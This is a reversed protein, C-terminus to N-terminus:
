ELFASIHGYGVEKVEVARRGLQGASQDVVHGKHQNGGSGEMDAMGRHM